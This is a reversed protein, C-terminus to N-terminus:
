SVVRVSPRGTPEIGCGERLASRGTGAHRTTSVGSVRLRLKVQDEVYSCTSSMVEGPCGLYRNLTVKAESSCANDHVCGVGLIAEIPAVPLFANRQTAQEISQNVGQIATMPESTVNM